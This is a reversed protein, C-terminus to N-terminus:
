FPLTAGGVPHSSSIFHYGFEQCDGDDYDGDVKVQFEGPRRNELFLSDDITVLLEPVPPSSPFEGMDVVGLFLHPPLYKFPVHNMMTVAVLEVVAGFVQLHHFPTLMGAHMVGLPFILFVSDFRAAPDGSAM